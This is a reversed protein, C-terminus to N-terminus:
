RANRGPALKRILSLKCDGPVAIYGGSEISTVLISSAGVLDHSPGAKLEAEHKWLAELIQHSAKLADIGLEPKGFYASKGTVRIDAIFFGIQATYVDLNTPEVYVAFDPKVIEGTEM